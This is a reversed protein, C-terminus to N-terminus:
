EGSLHYALEQRLPPEAIESGVRHSTKKPDMSTKLNVLEKM